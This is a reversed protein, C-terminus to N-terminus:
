EGDRVALLVEILHSRHAAGTRHSKAHRQIDVSRYDNQVAIAGREHLHSRQRRNSRLRGSVKDMDDKIVTNMIRRAPLGRYRRDNIKRPDGQRATITGPRHYVIEVTKSLRYPIGGRRLSRVDYM